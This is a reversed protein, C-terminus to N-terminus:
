CCGQQDQGRARTPWLLHAEAHHRAANQSLPRCLFSATRPALPHTQHLGQRQDLHLPRCAMIRLHRRLVLVPEPGESGCSVNGGTLGKELTAAREQTKFRPAIM